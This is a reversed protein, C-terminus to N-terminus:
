AVAQFYSLRDRECRDNTCSYGNIKWLAPSSLRSYSHRISSRHFIWRWVGLQHLEVRNHRWNAMNVYEMLISWAEDGGVATKSMPEVREITYQFSLKTLTGTPPSQLTFLSGGGSERSFPSITQPYSGLIEDTEAISVQSQHSGTSVDREDPIIHQAGRCRKRHPPTLLRAAAM